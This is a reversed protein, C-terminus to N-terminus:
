RSPWDEFTEIVPVDDTAEFWFILAAAAFPILIIGCALGALFTLM